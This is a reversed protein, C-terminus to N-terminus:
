RHETEKERECQASSRSTASTQSASKDYQEIVPAICQVDKTNQVDIEYCAFCKQLESYKISCSAHIVACCTDCVQVSEESEHIEKTCNSCTETTKQENLMLRASSVGTDSKYTLPILASICAPIDNTPCIKNYECSQCLYKFEAYTEIKDIESQDLGACHYHIWLQCSNCQVARTVVNRNCKKCKAKTDNTCSKNRSQLLLQLQDEFLRNIADTNISKNNVHTHQIMKHIAPLDNDM